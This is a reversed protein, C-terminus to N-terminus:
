LSDVKLNGTIYAVFARLFAVGVGTKSSCSFLFLYLDGCQLLCIGAAASNHMTSLSTIININDRTFMNSHYM